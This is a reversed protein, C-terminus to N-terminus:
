FIHSIDAKRTTLSTSAGNVLLGPKPKGINSGRRKYVSIKEAAFFDPLAGHVPQVGRPSSTKTTRLKVIGELGGEIQYARRYEATYFQARKIYSSLPSPAGPPARLSVSDARGMRYLETGALYSSFFEPELEFRNGLVEIMDRSLGKAVVLTGTREKVDGEQVLARGFEEATSCKIIAGIKGSKAVHIVKIDFHEMRKVLDMAFGEAKYDMFQQLSELWPRELLKLQVGSYYTGEKIHLSKKLGQDHDQKRQPYPGKELDTTLLTIIESKGM